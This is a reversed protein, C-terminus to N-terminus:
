NLMRSLETLFGVAEAKPRLDERCITHNDGEIQLRIYPSCARLRERHNTPSQGSPGRGRKNREARAFFALDISRAIWQQANSESLVKEKEYKTKRDKLRLKWTANPRLSSRELTFVQNQKNELFEIELAPFNVKAEALSFVLLPLCIFIGSLFKSFINGRM